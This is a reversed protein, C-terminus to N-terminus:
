QNIVFFTRCVLLDVPGRKKGFPLYVALLHFIRLSIYIVFTKCGFWLVILCYFVVLFVAM